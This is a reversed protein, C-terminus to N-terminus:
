DNNIGQEEVHSSKRAIKHKFKSKMYNRMTEVNEDTLRYKRKMYSLYGEDTFYGGMYYAIRNCISVYKKYQSDKQSKSREVFGSVDGTMEGIVGLDQETILGKNKLETITKEVLLLDTFQDSNIDNAAHIFNKNNLLSQIIWSM